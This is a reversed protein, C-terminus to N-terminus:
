VVLFYGRCNESRCKCEYKSMNEEQIQIDVEMSISDSKHKSEVAGVYDFTLEEGFEIDRKAFFAIHHLRIDCIGNLVPFVVLNPDCSHNFFHSINGYKCADITFFSTATSDDDYFDIDFLYTKGVEDYKNGRLDAEQSTIIEGLYYTIFSDKPIHQLAIVGWGKEAFRRLGLSVNRQHQTVRNPCSLDCSCADNCEIIANGPELNVAGTTRNYYLRGRNEKKLCSCQKAKCKSFECDCGVIPGQYQEPRPVDEGYVYDDVYTFELPIGQNDIDNFIPIQPEDNHVFTQHSHEFKLMNKTKSKKCITDNQPQQRLICLDEEILWQELAKELNFAQVLESCNLNQVPEWTNNSEDFNKWKLFYYVVGNEEKKDIVKEVEYEHDM